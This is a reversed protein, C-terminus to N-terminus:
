KTAQELTVKVKVKITLFHLSKEHYLTANLEEAQRDM